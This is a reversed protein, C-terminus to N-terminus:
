ACSGSSARVSLLSTPRTVFSSPPAYPADHETGAAHGATLGATNGARASPSEVASGVTRDVGGPLHVVTGGVLLGAFFALLTWTGRGM